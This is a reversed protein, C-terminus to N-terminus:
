ESEFGHNAFKLTRCNETVTRVVQQSAGGPLKAEVELTVTVEAGVQGALHAIVEDAVRSADRGVRTPDLRVTGYFRRPAAKAPQDGGSDRDTGTSDGKAGAAGTGSGTETYRSSSATPGPAEAEIQRRAAEPKVVLGTSDRSLSVVQGGCLGRYRGTGEDYSEAFAFTDAQWTLLAVGDGIARVLVDPHALRPLYLYRAFDEVLQKISVHDGRWLPVTDLHRRLVTSGLSLVLSEDSRLKKSARVALAESGQLRIAQWTVPAAPNEQGPVLLWCYAEPLRATVASDAAQRQSEAQRVHFPTLNLTDKDALISEWALFKRVAEDLDQLRVKDAALFVLANRYLRPSNGRCELISQAATRAPSEGEKAHPHDAPLVVLRTELEDAVDASSRPVPHVGAFDGRRKLEERLRRELEQTVKDPERKLQEARDEALKTVTPQTDYWFRTGDQYLYTATAALRRLADGFVAPSEGPLACGLKVRRDELGRQPAGATPASGLFITRAVRRAASLKGLNPQEGDLKVPLADPGDVDRELIPAWNDSLYRTLEFQVRPDDLPLSAPLILPSRDGKEWLCHIVAAMLRLVGRTRQFKVLTSWAGYLQDFVEPHIPYAAQLRREYDAAVCEPPFEARHQRYFDAFARATVDRQKFAEPGALPEFLRRRVIEFSEEASAPRWSSELRGVVNRLRDLAERGRVGGV